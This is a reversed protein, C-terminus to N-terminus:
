KLETGGESRQQEEYTAINIKIHAANNRITMKAVFDPVTEFIDVIM